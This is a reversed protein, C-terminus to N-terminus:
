FPNNQARSVAQTAIQAHVTPTMHRADAWLYSSISVDGILDAAIANCDPLVKQCVGDVVNSLGYIAPLRAMSQVVDDALVLGYNRGDYRAPDIGTRLTANFEFTLTRVREALGPSVRDLALVHPSYGMDPATVVMARAGTALLQNVREAVVTGLRRAEAVAADQTLSGAQMRDALSLLDNAGIMVGVMDTSTVAGGLTTQEALQAALGIAPDEVTAGVKARMFAKPAAAAKNCEAFVFGYVTALSQAWNPLLLCDRVRTTADLGNISYKRGNAAGDDVIVSHEDGLIILRAPQFAEIQSTGGGCAAFLGAVLASLLVPAALRRGRRHLESFVTM